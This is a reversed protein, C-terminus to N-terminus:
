PRASEQVREESKASKAVAQKLSQLENLILQLNQNKGVSELIKKKEEEVYDPKRNSDVAIYCTLEVGENRFLGLFGGLRINRHTLVRATPGYKVKMKEVAEWHNKAQVTFYQM